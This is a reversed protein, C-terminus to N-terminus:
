QLSLHLYWNLIQNGFFLTILAGLSLFPGFPISQGLKKKKIFILAIGVISGTLFALMLLVLSNSFGFALGLFISLKLDGGGMGRGKTFFIISGFFLTMLLAALLGSLFPQSTLLIHRQLYDNGPAMLYKGLPSATIGWYVLYVKYATSILLLFFAIVISPLTIRDFILGTKIDTLFINVLVCITFIPLLSELFIDIQRFTPLELINAPIIQLFLLSILLGMLVEILLYEISLKDHCYRCRGKTSLYSMIPILDFWQLQKKCKECNSRGGFSRNTIARDALAKTFSGLVAGLMFGFFLIINTNMVRYYRLTLINQFSGM